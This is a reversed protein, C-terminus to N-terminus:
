RWTGARLGQREDRARHERVQMSSVLGAVRVAEEDVARRRDAIREIAAAHCVTSTPPRLLPPRLM